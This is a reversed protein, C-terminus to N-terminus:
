RTRPRRPLRGSISVPLSTRSGPTWRSVLKVWTQRMTICFLSVFPLAPLVRLRARLAKPQARTWLPLMVEAPLITPRRGSPRAVVAQRQDMHQAELSCYHEAAWRRRGSVRERWHLPKFLLNLRKTPMLVSEQFAVSLNADESLAKILDEGIESSEVFSCCFSPRNM